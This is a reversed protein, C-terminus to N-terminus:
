ATASVPVGGFVLASERMVLLIVGHVDRESDRKGNCESEGSGVVRVARM